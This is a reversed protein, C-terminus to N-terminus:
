EGGIQQMTVAGALSIAFNFTRGNNDDIVTLAPISTNARMRRARSFAITPNFGAVAPPRAANATALDFRLGSAAPFDIVKYVRALGVTGDGQTRNSLFFVARTPSVIRVGATRVDNTFIGVPVGVLQESTAAKTPARVLSGYLERVYGKAKAREMNQSIAPVSVAALLALIVGITMVELLSFGSRRRKM